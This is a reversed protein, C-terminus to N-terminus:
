NAIKWLELNCSYMEFPIGDFRHHSQYVNSISSLLLLIRLNLIIKNSNFVKSSSHNINEGCIM